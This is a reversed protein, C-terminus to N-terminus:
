AKVATVYALGSAGIVALISGLISRLTPRENEIVYAFPIVALPTLAVIPLVVGTGHLMLAWQYTGIGLCPGLIGNALIWKMISKEPLLTRKFDPRSRKKYRVTLLHAVLAIVLGGAVRQAGASLGNITAGAAMVTLSAKRSFVAGLCQGLAAIFGFGIGAWFHGKPILKKNEPVLAVVVGILIVAAFIIQGVSLPTGIWMWEVFAGIPVGVCHVLITALRSGLRPLTQYLALDGFGYGVIGSILFYHMGSRSAQPDVFLWWSWLIVAAVLLRWFNAEMGGLVRTTKTAFSASAAFLIVTLFSPFM